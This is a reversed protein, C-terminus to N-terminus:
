KLNSLFQKLEALSPSDFNWYNRQAGLGVANVIDPQAALFAQAKLKSINKPPPTLGSACSVFQNVCKMAPRDEVTKLCLDELMTGQIKKGPMIFIGIKPNTNSFLGHKEPPTFGQQILINAVSEFADDGNQDRIVALHTVFSSGDVNFFGPTAKLAPLKNKFETKGVVDRIDVDSIKMYQLLADFFNCEDIGEVAIIKKLTIHGSSCKPM